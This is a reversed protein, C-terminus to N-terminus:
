GVPLVKSEVQKLWKEIEGCEEEFGSRGMFASTIIKGSEVGPQDLPDVNFLAGAFVTQVELMFLLAGVSRANIEELHITCNPRGARALAIATAKQESALLKSLCQGQLYALDPIDTAPPIKTSELKESTIFTVVKDFPGEMYLQLQSHQDTSGLAKVPTPGVFVASGDLDSKKGLSEAWMQCYWDAIDALQDSYPMMVSIHAGKGYALYQMLGNLYAPNKFLEGRMLQPSISAAGALLERVNIGVAALPLLGVASFVSFRGGVGDPVEASRYGQETALKRLVGKEPDTILVFHDRFSQGVANEVWGRAILFQSMTEVTTGSKSIVCFCTKEPDLMNLTANIGAPDVNDLVFLRPRGGRQQRDQLNYHVPLLANAIARTGLASGGIGLVVVNDFSNALDDALSILSQLGEQFPLEYFPLDGNKRASQLQQHIQLVPQEFEVLEAESIGCRSGVVESMMYTYNFKLM